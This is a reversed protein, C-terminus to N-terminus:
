EKKLTEILHEVRICLEANKVIVKEMKSDLESQRRRTSGTQKTLSELQHDVDVHKAACVDRWSSESETAVGVEAVGVTAVGVKPEGFFRKLKAGLMKDALKIAMILAVALLTTLPVQLWDEM